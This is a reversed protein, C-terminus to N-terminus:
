LWGGAPYASLLVRMEGRGNGLNQTAAPSYAARGPAQRLGGQATYMPLPSSRAVDKGRDDPASPCGGRSATARRKRRYGEAWRCDGTLERTATLGHPGALVLEAGDAFRAV